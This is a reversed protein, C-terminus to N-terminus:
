AAGFNRGTNSVDGLAANDQIRRQQRWAMFCVAVRREQVLAGMDNGVDAVLPVAPMAGPPAAHHLREALRRDSVM